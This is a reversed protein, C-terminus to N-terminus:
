SNRVKDAEDVILATGNLAAKLLPSDEYVIKGDLLTPTTTLSQVTTDRHLQMYEREINMLSFFKDIVKNKGVGQDGILLLARENNLYDTLISYLAHNQANNEHFVVSPVRRHSIPVLRDLEIDGIRVRNKKEDLVIDINSSKVSENTSSSLSIIGALIEDIKLKGAVSLLKYNFVHKLIDRLSNDTISSQSNLLNALRSLKRISINLESNSKAEKEVNEVFQSALTVKTSIHKAMESLSSNTNTIATDKLPLSSIIHSLYKSVEFAPFYHIKVGLDSSIYRHIAEKRSKHDTPALSEIIVRFKKDAVLLEGSPLDILGDHLLRRLSILTDVNLRHAGDLVCINGERAASVLPSDRWSTTVNTKINNDAESVRRQLLDRSTLEQFLPFIYINDYGNQKAFERVMESKGIGRPGVIHLHQGLHFDVQMMQLVNVQQPLLYFRESHMSQSWSDKSCKVDDNGLFKKISQLYPSSTFNSMWGISPCTRSIAQRVVEDTSYNEVHTSNLIQTLYRFSDLSFVPISSMAESNSPSTTRMDYVFTRRYDRLIEYFNLIKKLTPNMIGGEFDKSVLELVSEPSLEDVFRCQFRSRLPPQKIANINSYM